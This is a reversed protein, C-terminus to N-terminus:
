NKLLNSAKLVCLHRNGKNDNDDRNDNGNKCKVRMFNHVIQNKIRAGNRLFILIVPENSIAKNM